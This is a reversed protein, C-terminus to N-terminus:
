PAKKDTTPVADHTIAVLGYRLEASEELRQSKKRSVFSFVVFAKPKLPSRSATSNAEDTRSIFPMLCQAPLPKPPAQDIKTFSVDQMTVM